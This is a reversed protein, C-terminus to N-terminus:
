KRYESLLSDHQSVVTYDKEKGMSVLVAGDMGVTYYAMGHAAAEWMLPTAGNDATEAILIPAGITELWEVCNSTYAGHHNAKAVDVCLTDTGAYCEMVKKEQSIYFDGCTLYTSTGYIFKMAVSVGNVAEDGAIPDTTMAQEDTPNLIEIKVDGVYLVNGRKLDTMPVGREELLHRRIEEKDHKKFRYASSYYQGIHGHCTDYIYEIVAPMGGMHDIHPHSLVLYDLSTVGFENLMGVVLESCNEHAKDIMMTAGNPFIILTCDGAKADGELPSTDPMFIHLKGDGGKALAERVTQIQEEYRGQIGLSKESSKSYYYQHITECFDKDTGDVEGDIFHYKANRLPANGNQTDSIMVRHWADKTGNFYVDDISPIEKFNKMDVNKLTSPLYLRKLGKVSMFAKSEILELGEPLTIETLQECCYFAYVGLSVVDKGVCVKSLNSCHDFVSNGIRTVGDEIVATKISSIYPYWPTDKESTYDDTKGQGFLRFLGTNEDLSWSVSGTKGTLM